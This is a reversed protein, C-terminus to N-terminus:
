QLEKRKNLIWECALFIAKPESEAEFEETFKNRDMIHEKDDLRSLFALCYYTVEDSEYDIDGYSISTDIHYWNRYAWAKCQFAFEYINIQEACWENDTRCYSYSLINNKICYDDQQINTRLVANLLKYM